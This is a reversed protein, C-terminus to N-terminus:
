IFFNIEHRVLFKFMLNKLMGKICKKQFISIAAIQSHIFSHISSNKTM